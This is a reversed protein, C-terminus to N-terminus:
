TTSPPSRRASRRSGTVRTFRKRGCLWRKRSPIMATIRNMAGTNTTSYTIVRLLPCQSATNTSWTM